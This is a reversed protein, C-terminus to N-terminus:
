SIQKADLMGRREALYIQIQDIVEDIMDETLEYSIIACRVAPIEDVATVTMFAINERFMIRTFKLLEAHSFGDISYTVVSLQPENLVRIGPIESLKAAFYKALRISERVREMITNFGLLIIAGWTRLGYFNRTGELGMQYQDPMELDINKYELFVVDSSFSNHFSHRNNLFVISTGMPIGIWKHPDLTFSDARNVVSRLNSFEELMLVHGGYAGDIHFWLGEENAIELMEHLPEITGTNTSGLNGMIAVPICGNRRDQKIQERLTDTRRPDILRINDVGCGLVDWSRQLSFHSEKSGYIIMRGVIGSRRSVMQDRACKLATLNSITGSSTFLGHHDFIHLVESFWRLVCREILTASMALSAAGPSSHTANALLDFAHSEPVPRTLIYGFFKPNGIGTLGSLYGEKLQELVETISSGSMPVPMRWFATLEEESKRPFLESLSDDFFYQEALKSIELAFNRYENRFSADIM